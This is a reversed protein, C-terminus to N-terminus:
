CFHAQYACYNWEYISFSCGLNGSRYSEFSSTDGSKYSYSNFFVPELSM